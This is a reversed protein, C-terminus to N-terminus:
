AATTNALRHRLDAVGPGTHLYELVTHLTRLKDYARPPSVATVADVAQHGVTVAADADGAIAHSGALDPLYLAGLRAYNPGLRDVGNRLLAVAHGAARPDRDALALAYHAAGHFGSMGTESVHGGWPPATVPDIATFHEAAQGLAHECGDVDSQAAHARAKISALCGITSASIPHRGTATSEGIRVLHLAEQPRNLHVAQLAMDYLLYASLDEAHPHDTHRAIDLGILWLRRAADHDLVEFSMWGAQMALRGVALQLRLRLEDSVQADLLPLVTNVQAVAADRILGSGHAFDQRAFGATLQEIFEVDAAGVRRSGVPAAGPLLARLRGIDLGATAAMGLILKAAHDVFDRRDVWSVGKKRGTDVGQGVTTRGFGFKGAPITLANAIRSIVRVDYIFRRGREIESVAKEELEVVEGLRRQTWDQEARVAAFVPGVDSVALAASLPATDYFGPPLVL